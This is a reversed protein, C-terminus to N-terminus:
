ISIALHLCKNSFTALKFQLTLIINEFYWKPNAIANFIKICLLSTIHPGIKNLQIENHKSLAGIFNDIKNLVRLFFPKVISLFWEIVNQRSQTRIYLRIVFISTM